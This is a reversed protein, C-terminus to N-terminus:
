ELLHRRVLHDPSQLESTHEESRLAETEAYGRWALAMPEYLSNSFQVAARYDAGVVRPDPLVDFSARQEHGDVSLVATYRGPEVLIPLADHLPLSQLCHENTRDHL